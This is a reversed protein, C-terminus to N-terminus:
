TPEEKQVPLIGAFLCLIERRNLELITADVMTQVSDPGYLQMWLLAKRGALIAKWTFTDRREWTLRVRNIEQICYDRDSLIVEMADGVM